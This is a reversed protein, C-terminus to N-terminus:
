ISTETHDLPNITAGFPLKSIGPMSDSKHPLATTSMDRVDTAPLKQVNIPGKNSSSQNTGSKDVFVTILNTMWSPNPGMGPGMPMALVSFGGAVEDLEEDDLEMCGSSIYELERRLAEIDKDTITYGEKTACEIVAEVSDLDNFKAEFDRDESLRKILDKLDM